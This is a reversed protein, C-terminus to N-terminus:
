VFSSTCHYDFMWGFVFMEVMELLRDSDNCCMSRSLPFVKGFKLIMAGVCVLQYLITIM